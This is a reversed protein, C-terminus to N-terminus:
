RHSLTVYLKENEIDYIVRTGGNNSEIKMYTLSHNIVVYEENIKYQMFRHVRKDEALKWENQEAFEMFDSKKMHCNYVKIWGFGEREYFNINSATDPLWEVKEQNFATEEPTYSFSIIFLIIFIFPTSIAIIMLWKIIQKLIKM